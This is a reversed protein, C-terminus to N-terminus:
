IVDKKNYFEELLIKKFLWKNLYHSSTYKLYKNWNNNKIFEILEKNNTKIWLQRSSSKIDGVGMNSGWTNLCIDPEFNPIISPKINYKNYFGIVVEDPLEYVKKKNLILRNEIM